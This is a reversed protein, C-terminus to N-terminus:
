NKKDKCWYVFYTLNKKSSPHIKITVQNSCTEKSIKLNAKTIQYDSEDETISFNM